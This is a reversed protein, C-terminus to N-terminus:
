ATKNASQARPVQISQQSKQAQPFTAVSVGTTM